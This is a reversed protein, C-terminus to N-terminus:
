NVELKLLRGDRQVVLQTKTQRAVQEARLFAREMAAPLGRLDASKAQAISRFRPPAEHKM